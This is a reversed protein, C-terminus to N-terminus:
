VAKTLDGSPPETTICSLLESASKFYRGHTRQLKDVSDASLVVVELDASKRTREARIRGALARRRGDEGAFERLQVEGTRRNYQVLFSSVLGDMRRSTEVM